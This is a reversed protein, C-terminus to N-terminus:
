GINVTVSQKAPVDVLTMFRKGGALDIELLRRVKVTAWTPLRPDCVGNVASGFAFVTDEHLFRFSSM